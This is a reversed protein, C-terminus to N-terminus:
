CFSYPGCHRCNLFRGPHFGQEMHSAAVLALFGQRREIELIFPTLDSHIDIGADIRVHDVVDASQRGNRVAGGMVQEGLVIQFM